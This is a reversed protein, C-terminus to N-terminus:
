AFGFLLPFVAAVSIAWLACVPLYRTQWREVREFGQKSQIFGWQMSASRALNVLLVLNLGLGAARNASPGYEALRASINALAFVDVLLAAVVLVLQIWDFAGPELDRKHASVGYLLLALVVVLLLDFLILVDREADIVGGSLMVAGLLAVLMAAFLPTFVRALMPAMGAVLNGRTEALWTAVVAAGAAASVIWAEFFPEIDLGVAGFVGATLALLLGGGLGILAYNVLWEGTFRVYEMRRQHSKWDGGAHAVGAALWLAVPLHLATLVETSGGEAFPYTNVVLAAGAAVGGLAAVTKLALKRKWIFYAALFPLVLLSLNRAYFGADVDLDYGLLSPVKIALAAGFACALMVRFEVHTARSPESAVEADLVALMEGCHARAFARSAPDDAAIRKLAVIFAEDAALGYGELQAADGRLRHELVQLDPEVTGHEIAYARWADVHMQLRGREDGM